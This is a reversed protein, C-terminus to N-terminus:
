YLSVYVILESDNKSSSFYDSIPIIVPYSLILKVIFFNIEIRM